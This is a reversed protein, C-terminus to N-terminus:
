DDDKETDADQLTGGAIWNASAENRFIRILLTPAECVSPLAPSLQERKIQFDGGRSLPVAPSEFRNEGCFFAATVQVVGGATGVANGGALVLGEGRVSIRGDARVVAKLKSIAWPLGGPDIAHARNAALAGSVLAFPQSGFGADFRALVDGASAALPSAFASIFAAALLSKKM